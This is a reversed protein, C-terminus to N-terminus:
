TLNNYYLSYIGMKCNLTVFNNKYIIIGRIPYIACILSDIYNDSAETADVIVLGIAIRKELSEKSYIETVWIFKPMTSHLIGSKVESNLDSLGAVYSKFSRSSTLFFRIIIDKEFEYGLLEDKIISLSLEKAKTAESYIKPYLPVIISIITSEDYKDDEYSELPNDLTILKYPAENDDSVLYRNTFDTFDFYHKGNRLEREETNTYDFNDIKERGHIILAHGINENQIIAVLPIGSEVYYGIINDFDELFSNVAYIKTGFGFERLAFSIQDGGLGKSPLLREDSYIKLVELIDSPLTPKYEAYRYGFYEMIAWITTEACSVSETDQSSHPFGISSLKVGGILSNNNCHVSLFNNVLVAKPHILSRGIILPFTPRIVFFGLYNEDLYKTREKDGFDEFEIENEFLSIRICDRHYSKHKSSFYSYYSNRYVKDVYPFEIMLYLDDKLNDLFDNLHTEIDTSVGSYGYKEKILDLITKSADDITCITNSIMGGNSHM